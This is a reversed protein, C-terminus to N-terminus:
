WGFFGTRGVQSFIGNRNNVKSGTGEVRPTVLKLFGDLMDKGKGYIVEANKKDGTADLMTAATLQALPHHAEYPIQPIPSTGAESLYSGVTVGAPLAAFTITNGSINTVVLDDGSSTFIPTGRIIDYTMSTTFFSPVSQLTVQNAGQNVTTIKGAKSTIVLNNPRRMYKFRISFTSFPSSDPILVIKDDKVLVGSLPGSNKSFIPSKVVEPAIRPVAVENGNVDVMVIDRLMGGAARSPIRYETTGTVVPTDVSTVFYEEQVSVISNVVTAFMEDNAYAVINDPLFFNQSTPVTIRRKVSNVLETTTYDIPM